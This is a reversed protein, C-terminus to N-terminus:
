KKGATKSVNTGETKATDMIIKGYMSKASIATDMLKQGYKNEFKRVCSLFGHGQVYIRYKNDTQYRM